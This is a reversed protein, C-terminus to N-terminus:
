VLKVTCGSAELKLRLEEAETKSVSQKIMAPKSAVNDIADKAEKLGLGTIERMMKIAAIKKDAAVATLTVDFETQEVGEPPQILDPFLLAGGMPAPQASVGWKEELNHILSSLETAPINSLYEIVQERTLNSM